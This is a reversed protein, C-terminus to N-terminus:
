IVHSLAYQSERPAIQMPQRQHNHLQQQQQQQQQQQMQQQHQLQQQLSEIREVFCSASIRADHDYEWGDIIANCIKSVPYYRWEPKIPPRLKEGNVIQRMTNIDPNSGVADEFPMKYPAPGVDGCSQQQKQEKDLLTTQEHASAEQSDSGLMNEDSRPLMTDVDVMDHPNPKMSGGALQHSRDSDQHITSQIAAPAPAVPPSTVVAIAPSAFAQPPLLPREEMPQQYSMMREDSDYQQPKPLPYCRSILEWLVLSLAYVDIKTFSIKTFTVSCELVEPAMYRPTGVQLYKKRQETHSGGTIELTAAVGFDTICPTLDHRLLVNKSKFDRHAIDTDHLHSLGHVIGLSIRLFEDWNITNSKLYHHLSGKQAYEVLLWYSDTEAHGCSGLFSLINPHRTKSSSYIKLENLWSQHENSHIIKIAIEGIMNRNDDNDDGDGRNM